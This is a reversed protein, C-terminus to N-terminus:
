LFTIVCLGVGGFMLGFLSFVKEPGIPAGDYEPCVQCPAGPNKAYTASIRKYLAGEKMLSTVYHTFIPLLPSNKPFIWGAGASNYIVHPIVVVECNRYHENNGM